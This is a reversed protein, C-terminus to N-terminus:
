GLLVSESVKAYRDYEYAFLSSSSWSGDTAREYAQTYGGVATFVVLRGNHVCAHKMWESFDTWPDSEVTWTNSLADYVLPSGFKAIVFFNGDFALGGSCLKPGTRGYYDTGSWGEPLPAGLRWTKADIDYIQLRDSVTSNHGGALLQNGIVCSTAGRCAHPMPPLEEWSGTAENFAHLSNFYEGFIDDHGGAVYLLGGHWEICHDHSYRPLSTLRKLKCSSADM